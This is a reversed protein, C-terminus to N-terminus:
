ASDACVAKVRMKHTVPVSSPRPGAGEIFHTGLPTKFKSGFYNNVDPCFLMQEVITIDFLEQTGDPQILVGDGEVSSMALSVVFRISQTAWLNWQEQFAM